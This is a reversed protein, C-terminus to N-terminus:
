AQGRRRRLWSLLAGGLLLGLSSGPEPLDLADLDDGPEEKGRASVLGLAEAPVFIAPPGGAGTPQTLIDGEVIPIGIMSDMVGIVASGRRVSFLIFDNASLLGDQDVDDFLLADLDDTGPGQLDLGLTAAPIAVFPFGGPPSVLVDAPSVGLLAASGSNVPPGELPDVFGADLSFYLPGLVDALTTDNDFADLNDGDDPLGFSAPNAEILGFGPNTGPAVGDGDYFQVNGAGVGPPTPVVPGLYAFVDASAEMMGSSGESAVDPAAGAVGIAFEDVSFLLNSGHDRGYSFADVEGVVAGLPTPPLFPGPAMMGPAPLPGPLAPNPGPAGPPATTLITGQDIPLGAFSDALGISPGQLDISFTPGLTSFLPPQEFDSRVTLMFEFSISEGIDLSTHDRRMAGGVEDPGYALENELSDREIEFHIGDGDGDPEVDTDAPKGPAHGRYHGLGWDDPPVESHMGVHDTFKFPTMLGTPAGTNTAYQTVDYRFSTLAGAAHLDPDYVEFVSPTEANAPHGHLMQYFRINKIPANSFNTVRYTQRLVYRNSLIYSGDRLGMPTGTVTDEMDFHIEIRVFGNSIASYWEPLGDADPDGLDTLATDVDFTSNSLWDPYLLSPELWMSAASAELGDYGIAAAWEGSLMEHLFGTPFPGSNFILLDSYGFESM